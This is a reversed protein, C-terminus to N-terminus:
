APVHAARGADWAELSARLAPADLRARGVGVGGETLPGAADAPDAPVADVTVHDVRGPLADPQARIEAALDVVSPDGADDDGFDPEIGRPLRVAVVTLAPEDWHEPRDTLVAAADDPAGQARDAPGAVFAPRAGACLVGLALARSLWHDPLDLLVADGPVVGEDLLLGAAKAAWNVTVTGSLEIRQDVAGHAAGAADGAPAPEQVLAPRPSTALRTVLPGDPRPASLSVM